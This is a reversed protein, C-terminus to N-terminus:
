FPPCNSPLPAGPLVLLWPPPNRPPLQLSQPPEQVPPTPNLGDNWEPEFGDYVPSVIYGNAETLHATVTGSMSLIRQLHLNFRANIYGSAKSSVGMAVGLRVSAGALLGSRCFPPLCTGVFLEWEPTAWTYSAWAKLAFHLRLDMSTNAFSWMEKLPHTDGTRVLVHADAFLSLSCNTCRM